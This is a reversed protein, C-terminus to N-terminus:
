LVLDAYDNVTAPYCRLTCFLSQDTVFGVKCQFSHIVVTQYPIM